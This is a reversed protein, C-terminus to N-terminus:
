VTAGDAWPNTLSRARVLLQDAHPSSVAQAQVDGHRRDEGRVDDAQPGGPSGHPRGIVKEVEVMAQARTRGKKFHSYLKNVRPKYVTGNPLPLRAIDRPISRAAVQKSKPNITLVLIADTRDGSLTPRYDSGLLLVTLRGNGGYTIAGSQGTVTSLLELGLWQM